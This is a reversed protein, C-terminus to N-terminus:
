RAKIERQSRFSLVLEKKASIGSLSTVTAEIAMMARLERNLLEFRRELDDEKEKGCRIPTGPTVPSLRDTGRPATLDRSPYLMLLQSVDAPARDTRQQTGREVVLRAVPLEPFKPLKCPINKGGM